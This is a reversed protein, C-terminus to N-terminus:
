VSELHKPSYTNIAANIMTKMQESFDDYSIPKYSDLSGTNNICYEMEAENLRDISKQFIERTSKVLLKNLESQPINSLTTAHYHGVFESYLYAYLKGFLQNDMIQDTEKRGCYEIVENLANVDNHNPSFPKGTTFRWKLRQLSKSINM